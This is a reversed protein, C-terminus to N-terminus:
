KGRSFHVGIRLGLECKFIQVNNRRATTSREQTLGRVKPLIEYKRRSPEDSDRATRVPFRSM